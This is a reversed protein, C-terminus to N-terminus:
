AFSMEYILMIYCSVVLLEGDVQHLAVGDEEVVAVWAIFPCTVLAKAPSSYLVGLTGTISGRM